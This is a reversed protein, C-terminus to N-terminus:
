LVYAFAISQVTGSLSGVLKCQIQGGWFVCKFLMEYNGVGWKESLSFIVM